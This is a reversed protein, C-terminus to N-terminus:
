SSTRPKPALDSRGPRRKGWGCRCGPRRPAFGTAQCAQKGAQSRVRVSDLSGPLGSLETHPQAPDLHCVQEGTTSVHLFWDERTQKRASRKEYEQMRSSTSVSQYQDM